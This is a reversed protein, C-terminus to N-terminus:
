AGVAKDLEEPTWRKHAPESMDVSKVPQETNLTSPAINLRKRAKALCAPCHLSPMLADADRCNWCIIVGQESVLDHKRALDRAVEHMAAVMDKGAQTINM